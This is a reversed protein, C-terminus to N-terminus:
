KSYAPIGWHLPQIRCRPPSLLPFNCEGLGCTKESTKECQRSSCLQCSGAKLLANCFACHSCTLGSRWTFIRLLLYSLLCRYAHADPCLYCAKKKKKKLSSGSCCSPSQLIIMLDSNGGKGTDTCFFAPIKNFSADGWMSPKSSSHDNAGFCCLGM